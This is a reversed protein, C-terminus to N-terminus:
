RVVAAIAWTSSNEFVNGHMLSTMNSVQSIIQGTVTTRSPLRQQKLMKVFIDVIRKFLPNNVDELDIM